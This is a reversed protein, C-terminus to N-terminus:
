SCESSDSGSTAQNFQDGAYPFESTLLLYLTVGLSYIDNKFADYCDGPQLNQVEPSMYNATGRRSNTFGGSELLILSAGMDSLKINYNEDLLINELKLDLHAM